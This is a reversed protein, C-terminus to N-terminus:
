FQTIRKYFIKVKTQMLPVTKLETMIISDINIPSIKLKDFIISSKPKNTKLKM